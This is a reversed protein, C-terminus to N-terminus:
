DLRVHLQRYGNAPYVMRLPARSGPYIWRTGALLAEIANRMEMRALSAGPCVHIGAGYLLNKGPDRAPDVQDAREFVSEDRNASIWMVSIREGARIDQEGLRVDRTAIRRNCVLPGEARLIEDIVAPVLSTDARVLAQLSEDTALRHVIISLGATLSGLEGVTWNRLISAIDDHDLPVGDIRSRLLGSIVDEGTSPATKHFAALTRGVAHRFENAISALEKRDGSLTAARNRESWSAISAALEAPWGVFRCQCELSYGIAFESVFERDRGTGALSAAFGEAIRRCVPAFARLKAESLLPEILQRYVTHEPPDMGNPVSRHRSAANSFCDPNQLVHLVDAHTFVSWGLLDSYAVPHQQRMTDYAHVQDALVEPALPNWRPVPSSM